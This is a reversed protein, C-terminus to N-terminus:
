GNRRNGALDFPLSSLDEGSERDRLPRVRERELFPEAV